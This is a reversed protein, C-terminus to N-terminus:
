RKRYAEYARAARPNVKRIEALVLERIEDSSVEPNRSRELKTTVTKAIYQAMDLPLGARM